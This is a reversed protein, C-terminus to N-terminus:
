YQNYSEANKIYIHSKISALTKEISKMQYKLEIEKKGEPTQAWLMETLADSKHKEESQKIKTWETAKKLKIPIMENAYSMYMASLEVSIQSLNGPIEKNKDIEEIYQKLTKM